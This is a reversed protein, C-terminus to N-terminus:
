GRMAALGFGHAEFVLEGKQNYGRARNTLKGFGPKSSPRKDLTTTEYSIVDGVFVPRKWTLDFFGPSPRGSAGTEGRATAEARMRDRTEVFCSMYRAATHWGSAALKGFHSRAAADDDLHFPQPDFAAAFKMMEARTFVRSGLAVRAGVVVDEYVSSFRTRNVAEDDFVPPEPAVVRPAPAPAEGDPFPAGPDRRGVLTWNRQRMVPEGTQDFVHAVMAVLGIEPRSRSVRSGLIDLKASLVMGPRVPRLWSADDIGPAGLAMSGDLFGDAMMRMHMACTHWGSAIVGGPTAPDVHFSQPDFQRAFDIIEDEVVRYAGYRYSAGPTLDEFALSPM